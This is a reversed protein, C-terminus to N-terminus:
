VAISSRSESQVACPTTAFEAITKAPCHGCTRLLLSLQNVRIFQIEVFERYRPNSCNTSRPEDNLTTSAVVHCRTQFTRASARWNWFSVNGSVAISSRLRAWGCSKSVTLKLKRSTLPASPLRGPQWIAFSKAGSAVENCRTPANVLRGDNGGAAILGASGVCTRFISKFFSSRPRASLLDSQGLPVSNSADPPPKHKMVGAFISPRDNRM